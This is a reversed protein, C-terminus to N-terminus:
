EKILILEGTTRPVGAVGAPPPPAVVLQITDPCQKWETFYDLHKIRVRFQWKNTYNPNFTKLRATNLSLTDGKVIYDTATTDNPARQVLGSWDKNLGNKWELDVIPLIPNGLTDFKSFVFLFEIDKIDSWLVENIQSGEIVLSVENTRKSENGKRGYAVIAFYNRGPPLENVTSELVDGVNDSWKLVGSIQGYYIRYGVVETAGWRPLPPEWSVIASNESTGKVSIEGPIIIALLLMLINIM